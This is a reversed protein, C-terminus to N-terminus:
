EELIFQFLGQFKNKPLYILEGKNTIIKYNNNEVGYLIERGKTMDELLAASSIFVDKSLEGLIFSQYEPNWYYADQHTYSDVQNFQELPPPQKSKTTYKKLSTISNIRFPESSVFDLVTEEVIRNWQNENGEPDIWIEKYIEEYYITKHWVNKYEDSLYYFVDLSKEYFFAGFREDLVQTIALAEHNLASIKLFQIDEIPALNEIKSHYIFSDGVEHYIGVVSLDKSLNLAIIIQKSPNPLVQGEYISIEIYDIFEQWKEYGMGKLAISIIQKEADKKIIPDDQNKYLILLQDNLKYHPSSLHIFTKVTPESQFFAYTSFFSLLIFLFSFM